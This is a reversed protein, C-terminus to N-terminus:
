SDNIVDNMITQASGATLNGAEFEKRGDKVDLVMQRREQERLRLQLLDVLALQDDTSLRDAAEVIDAFREM